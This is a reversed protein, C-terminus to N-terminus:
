VGLRNAAMSLRTTILNIDLSYPTKTREEQREEVARTIANATIKASSQSLSPVLHLSGEWGQDHSSHVMTTCAPYQCMACMGGSSGGEALGYLHTHPVARHIKCCSRDDLTAIANINHAM